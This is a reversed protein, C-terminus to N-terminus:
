FIGGVTQDAKRTIENELSVGHFICSLLNNIEKQKKKKKKKQSFFPCFISFSKGSLVTENAKSGFSGSNKGM